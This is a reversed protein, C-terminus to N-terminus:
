ECRKYDEDKARHGPITDLPIVKWDTGIVILYDVHKGLEVAFEEYRKGAVVVYGAKTGDVTKALAIDVTRRAQRAFLGIRRGRRRSRHHNHGRSRARNWLLGGVHRGAGQGSRYAPAQSDCLRFWIRARPSGPSSITGPAMAAM